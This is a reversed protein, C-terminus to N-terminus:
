DKLKQVFLHTTTIPQYGAKPRTATTGKNRSYKAIILLGVDAFCHVAPSKHSADNHFIPNLPRQFHNTYWEISQKWYSIGQVCCL